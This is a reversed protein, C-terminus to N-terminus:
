SKISRDKQQVLITPLHSTRQSASLVDLIAVSPSDSESKQWQAKPKGTWDFHNQKEASHSPKM